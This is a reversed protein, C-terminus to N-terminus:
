SFAIDWTVIIKLGQRMDGHRIDCTSNLLHGHDWTSKLPRPGDNDKANNTGISGLFAQHLIPKFRCSFM